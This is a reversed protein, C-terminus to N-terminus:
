GDQGNRHDKYKIELDKDKSEVHSIRVFPITHFQRPGNVQPVKNKPSILDM